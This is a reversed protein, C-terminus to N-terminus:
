GSPYPRPFTDPEGPPPEPPGKKGCGALVLSLLMVLIALGAGVGASGRTWPPPLSGRFRSPPPPHIM